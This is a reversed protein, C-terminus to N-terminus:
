GYSTGNWEVDINAVEGQKECLEGTHQQLHRINYFQLELKSYPLWRFGSKGVLDLLAVTEAVQGQVDTLYELLEAKSYPPRSARDGDPSKAQPDL